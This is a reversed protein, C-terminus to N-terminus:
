EEARAADRLNLVKDAVASGKPFFREFNLGAGVARQIGAPDPAGRQTTATNEKVVAVTQPINAGLTFLENMFAANRPTNGLIIGAFVASSSNDGVMLLDDVRKRFDSDTFKARLAGGILETNNVPQPDGTGTQAAAEAAGDLFIVMEGLKQNMVEPSFSGKPQQETAGIFFDGKLQTRDATLFTDAWGVGPMEKELERYMMAHASIKSAANVSNLTQRHLSIGDQTSLLQQLAEKPKLKSLNISFGAGATQTGGFSSTNSDAVTQQFAEAFANQSGSMYSEPPLAAFSTVMFPAAEIANAPSVTRTQSYQTHAARTEEPQQEILRKAEEQAAKVLEDVRKLQSSTANGGRKLGQMMLDLEANRATAEATLVGNNLEAVTKNASNVTDAAVAIEVKNAQSTTTLDQATRAATQLELKRAILHQSMIDIQGIGDVQRTAFKFESAAAQQILADLDEMGVIAAAAMKSTTEAIKMLQQPKLEKAMAAAEVQAEFAMKNLMTRQKHQVLANVDKPELGFKVPDAIAADINNPLIQSVLKATAADKTSLEARALTLEDAKLSVTSSKRANLTRIIEPIDGAVFDQSEPNTLAAELQVDDKDDIRTQLQAAADTRNERTAQRRQSAQVLEQSESKERALEAKTAAIAANTKLTQRQDIFKFDQGARSINKNANDIVTRQLARNASDDGFLFKLNTLLPNRTNEFQNAQATDIVAREKQVVAQFNTLASDRADIAGTRTLEERAISKVLDNQTTNQPPNRREEDLLPDGTFDLNHPM